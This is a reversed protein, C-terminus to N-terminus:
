DSLSECAPSFSLCARTNQKIMNKRTSQTKQLNINHRKTESGAVEDEAVNWFVLFIIWIPRVWQPDGWRGLNILM